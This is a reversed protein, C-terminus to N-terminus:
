AGAQGAHHKTLEADSIHLLRAASRVAGTATLGQLQLNAREAAILFDMVAARDERDRQIVEAFQDKTMRMRVSAVKM